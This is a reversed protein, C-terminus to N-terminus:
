LYGRPAAVAQILSMLPVFLALTVWLVFAGFVLVMGPVMAGRLLYWTRSFNSEYHRSLFRLTEPLSGSRVAPGIMGSVIAPLGAERAAFDIGQGVHVNQSWVVIRERLVANLHPLAAEAIASDVPRSADLASAIVSCVDAMGRDRQLSGVIPMYWCARDILPRLPNPLPKGPTLLQRFSQGLMALLMVLAVMAVIPLFVEGFSLLAVTMAPLDTRFDRFIQVFRPLVFVALMGLVGPLVILTLLLYMRVFGNESADQEKEENKDLLEPLVCNLCGNREAASVMELIRRPAHPAGDTLASSISSGDELAVRMRNLGSAIAGAESAAAARLMPVLPLNMRVAQTVYALTIRVRRRRVRRISSAAVLVMFSATGIALPVFGTFLLMFTAALPLLVLTAASWMIFSAFSRAASAGRNQSRALIPDAYPIM